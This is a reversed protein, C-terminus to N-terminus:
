KKINVAIRKKNNIFPIGDVIFESQGSETTVFNGDPELMRFKDGDKLSALGREVIFWEGDVFLQVQRTNNDDYEKIIDSVYTVADAKRTLVAWADKIRSKLSEYKYNEPRCVAWRGGGVDVKNNALNDVIYM